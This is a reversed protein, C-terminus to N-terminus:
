DEGKERKRWEEYFKTLLPTGSDEIKKFGQDKAEGAKGKLFKRWLENKVLQCERKEEPSSRRSHIKRQLYQIMELQTDFSLSGTSSQGQLTLTGSSGRRTPDVYTPNKEWEMLKELTDVQGEKAGRQLAEAKRKDYKKKAIIALKAKLDDRESKVDDLSEEGEGQKGSVLNIVVQSNREKQKKMFEETEKRIREQEDDDGASEEVIYNTHSYYESNVSEEIKLEKLAEPTLIEWIYGKKIDEPSCLKAYLKRKNEIHEFVFIKEQNAGTFSEEVLLKFGIPLKAKIKQM